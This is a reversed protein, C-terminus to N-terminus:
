ALLNNIVFYHIKMYSKYFYIITSTPWLTGYISHTQRMKFGNLYFIIFDNIFLNTWDKIHYHEHILAFIISMSYTKM